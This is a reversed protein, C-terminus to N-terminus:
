YPIWEDAADDRDCCVGCLGREVNWAVEESLGAALCRPCQRLAVAYHDAVLVPKADPRDPPVLDLVSIGYEPADMEKVRYTGAPVKAERAAEATVRV